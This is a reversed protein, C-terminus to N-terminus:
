NGTLTRMQLWTGPTGSATCIWGTTVYKNGATGLESPASNKVEDGINWTGTTPAATTAGYHAVAKDESLANLQAQIERLTRYLAVNLDKDYNSETRVPLRPDNVRM